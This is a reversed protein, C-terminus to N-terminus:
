ATSLKESMDKLTKVQAGRKKTRQMPTDTAVKKTMLLKNTKILNIMSEVDTQKRGRTQIMIGNM